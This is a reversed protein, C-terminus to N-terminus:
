TTELSLWTETFKWVTDTQQVTMRQCKNKQNHCYLILIAIITIFLTSEFVHCEDWQYISTHTGERQIQSTQHSIQGTFYLPFSARNGKLDSSLLNYTAKAQNALISERTGQTAMYFSLQESAAVLRFWIGVTGASGLIWTIRAWPSLIHPYSSEFSGMEQNASNGKTVQIKGALDGSMMSCLCTMAAMHLGFKQGMSHRLM